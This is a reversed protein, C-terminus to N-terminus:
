LHRLRRHRRRHPLRESERRAANSCNIHHQAGVTFATVFKVIDRSSTLFFMVGFLFLLHDYGTLMHLVGYWFYTLPGGYAIGQAHDSHFGHAWAGNLSLSSLIILLVAFTSIAKIKAFSFNAM